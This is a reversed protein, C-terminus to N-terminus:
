FKIIERVGDNFTMTEFAGIAGLLKETSANLNLDCREAGYVIHADPNINERIEEVFVRLPESRRGAVNYIGEAGDREGLLRLARAADRKYIFNWVHQGDTNLAATGRQTLDRLLSMVLTHPSDNPGYASFVRAWTHQIGMKVALNATLYYAAVKCAGYATVPKLQTEETIMEATEGYEAQSGTCVFRKCGADAAAKLCNVAIGVNLYQEYFDNRGGGGWALHFFVDAGVANRAIATTDYLDVEVVTVYKLSSLRARSRSNPRCLAVTEIGSEVLENLLAVGLFGAAGTVAAKKLSM